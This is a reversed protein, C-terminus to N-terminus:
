QAGQQSVRHGQQRGEHRTGKAPARRLGRLNMPVEFTDCAQMQALFLPMCGGCQARKGLAHWVKGPTVLTAADAARMWDIAAEIDHDTIGTCSCVIM